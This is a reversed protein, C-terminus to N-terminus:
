NCEPETLEAQGSRSAAPKRVPCTREDCYDWTDTRGCASCSRSAAPDSQGIIRVRPDGDNWKNPESYSDRESGLARHEGSHGLTLVCTYSDRTSPCLAAPDTPTM